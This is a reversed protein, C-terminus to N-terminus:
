QLVLLSTVVITIVAQRVIQQVLQIPKAIMM